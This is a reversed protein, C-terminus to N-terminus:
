RAKVHAPHAGVGPCRTCAGAKPEARLHRWLARRRDDRDALDRPDPHNDHLYRLYMLRRYFRHLDFPVLEGATGQM